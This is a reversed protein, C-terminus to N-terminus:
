KEEIPVTQDCPAYGWTPWDAAAEGFARCDAMTEGDRAYVVILGHLRPTGCNFATSTGPEVDRFDAALSLKLELRDTSGDSEAEVSLIEHGEVYSGDTSMWLTGGGTWRRTNVGFVWRADDADCKVSASDIEPPDESPDVGVDGTAPACGLLWLM